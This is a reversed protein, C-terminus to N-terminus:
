KKLDLNEKQCQDMEATWVKQEKYWKIAGPHYPLAAIPRVFGPRKWLRFSAHYPPLQDANQWIAKISEYAANEALSGRAFVYNPIALMKTPVEVGAPGAKTEMVFVGPFVKRSRAIAEPSTDVPLFRVPRTINLEEIVAAGVANITADARGEKVARAAEAINSVSVPIVDERSLGANALYYRSTLNAALLSGYDTVVRKGKLDKLDNINADKAAFYGAQLPGGLLILAIDYGKGKTPEAYMDKGLYAYFSDAGGVIGFDVEKSEMMPYWSTAPQPLVEVKMPSNKQIVDALAAGTVYLLSGPTNTGFVLTKPLPGASWVISASGALIMVVMVTRIVFGKMKM